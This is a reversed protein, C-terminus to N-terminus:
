EADLEIDIDSLQAVLAEDELDELLERLFEESQLAAELKQSFLM